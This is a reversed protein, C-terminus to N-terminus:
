FKNARPGFIKLGINKLFQREWDSLRADNVSLVVVGQDAFANRKVAEYDVSTGALSAPFNTRIPFPRQM